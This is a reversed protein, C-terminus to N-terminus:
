LLPHIIKMLAIMESPDGNDEIFWQLSIMVRLYIWSLLRQYDIHLANALLTVREVIIHPNAEVQQMEDKSVLDFAAAEFAMEGIIGKPDIVVWSNNMQIINELHLDGHCLYEQLVTTLLMERITKAKEIYHNSIVGAPIRNIAACWKSAHTFAQAPMAQAVLKKVVNAYIHITDQINLPHHEKLLYGPIAQELLLANFEANFDFVAIAGQGHWFKLTQYEDTILQKDCSIKLVVPVKKDQMAFAVYNYSMNNVPQINSLSWHAALTEVIAPLQMLWNKGYDAFIGIVNKELKSLDTM